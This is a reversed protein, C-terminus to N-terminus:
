SIPIREPPMLGLTFLAIRTHPYPELSVPILGFVKAENLLPVATCIVQLSCHGDAQSMGECDPMNFAMAAPNMSAQMWPCINLAAYAFRVPLCIALVLIMAISWRKSNKM